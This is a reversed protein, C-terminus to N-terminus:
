NAKPENAPGLGNRQSEHHERRKTLKPGVEADWIAQQEPTMSRPGREIVQQAVAYAASHRDLLGIRVLDQIANRLERDVNLEM